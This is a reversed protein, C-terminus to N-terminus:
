FACQTELSDLTSPLVIEVVSGSVAIKFFLHSIVKAAVPKGNYTARYVVGFSGDGLLHDRSQKLMLKSEEVRFKECVDEMVMDPAIQRLAVLLKTNPCMVFEDTNQGSISELDFTHASTDQCIPCGALKRILPVGNQPDLGGAFM